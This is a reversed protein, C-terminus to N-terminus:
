SFLSVDMRLDVSWGSVGVGGGEIVTESVSLRAESLDMERAVFRRRRLEDISLGSLM